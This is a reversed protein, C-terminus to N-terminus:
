GRSAYTFGEIHAQAATGLHM